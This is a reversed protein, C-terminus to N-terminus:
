AELTLGVDLLVRDIVRRGRDAAAGLMAAVTAFTIAGYAALELAEPSGIAGKLVPAVAGGALAAGLLLAVVRRCAEPSARRVEWAAAAGPGPPPVASAMRHWEVLALIGLGITLWVQLADHLPAEGGIHPVPTSLAPLFAVAWGSHDGHTFGDLFIHTAGGVLASLAVRALGAAGAAPRCRALAHLHLPAGGPLHPLLWPLVLGTALAHLVVVLPVIIVFLGALSHGFPFGHEDLRFVFTLDPAVTGLVLALGSFWHPRWRKLPLVPAQHSPIMWPM